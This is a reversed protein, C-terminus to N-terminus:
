TEEKRDVTLPKLLIEDITAHGSDGALDMSGIQLRGDAFIFSVRRM